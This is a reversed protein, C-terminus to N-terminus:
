HRRRNQRITATIVAKLSPRVALAGRGKPEMWWRHGPTAGRPHSEKVAGPSSSLQRSDAHVTEAAVRLSQIFHITCKLRVAWPAKILKEPVVRGPRPFHPSFSWVQVKLFCDHVLLSLAGTIFLDEKPSFQTLFKLSPHIFFEIGFGTHPHTFHRPKKWFYSLRGPFFDSKVNIIM